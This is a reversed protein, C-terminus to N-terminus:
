LIPRALPRLAARAPAGEAGSLPLPLCALEYDGPAVGRLYLGEIIWIGARMLTVHTESSDEGPGAISLYDIGVCAVRREALFRAGGPSLHAYASTFPTRAWESDSNPTRLLLREGARVRLPRLDSEAIAGSVPLEVVRAPGMVADLPLEDIGPAGDVFHMPADMHTGTHASMRMESATYEDGGAISLRRSIEVGVDGPWTVMGTTIPASVDIWEAM